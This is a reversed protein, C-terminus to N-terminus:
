RKSYQFNKRAKPQGYKKREVERSDRTLLGAKKLTSRFEPSVKLLARAIGHRVAEAQGTLGGGDVTAIVDFKTTSGTLDLPQKLVMRASPRGFYNDLERKNIKIVGTGGEVLFVRATAEKRRGTAYYKEAM